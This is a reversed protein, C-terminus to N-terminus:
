GLSPRDVLHAEPQDLEHLEFVVLENGQPRLWCGPVYLTRQPGKEWYRGLNIGNLFCFGKKGGPVALFTDAQTPADFTGRYFRPGDPLTAQGVPVFRLVSLDALPLPYIQWDFLLQNSLTVSATIGKRDHLEPGYNVRGQNEVLIDLQAGGDPITIELTNVAGDRELVGVFRGDLFVQARDHVDRIQLPGAPRPGSVRTRYLIFGYGQGLAEMTVPTPRRVPTSLAPLAEWLSVAETLAVCGLAQKPAPEPVPLGSPPAYRGLLERFAHFKPTPDGAEDLPADSDYSTVDPQYTGPHNAGPAFGFSTGGHFMYLNVSGGLALIEELAAAADAPDRRHHEEGWHDFWGNWFEGCMLPGTPQYERLKAFAARAGSGFNAIKHIEPLTGGQLMFDTPGDSTYLLVDVGRRRLGDALHRLYAQDNGYSGYENEVQMAIIPGGHTCQLPVLQEMLADLFRDVAELYPPYNCRLRMEPDRLLWWPLGGLDWESCIYPGPRVLVMLDAAAAERVFAAVDLNGSFCFQGPQPEHWNWAVYTCVANLNCARAKRLRDAWYPRPVRFYHIEGSLLRLPEGDRVFQDGEITFTSM